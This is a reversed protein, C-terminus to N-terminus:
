REVAVFRVRTGARLLAPEPRDQDWLALDTRGILQWGGPSSRPYIASYGGALAVSGAPVVTRAQARRPVTLQARPAQLYGFGPAFGIFACYWEAGTHRDVLERTTIGLLDAAAALDPGDYRVPVTVPDAATGAHDATGSDLVLTRLRNEIVAVDAGARLTLLVTTAAPLLDAVGDIPAHRLQDLLVPLQAADDPELLLARDGAPRVTVATM